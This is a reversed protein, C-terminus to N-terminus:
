SEPEGGGNDGEADGVSFSAKESRATTASATDRNRERAHAGSEGGATVFRCDFRADGKRGHSRDERDYAIYPLTTLERDIVTAGAAV